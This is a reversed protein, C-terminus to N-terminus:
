YMKNVPLDPDDDPGDDSDDMSKNKQNEQDAAKNKKAGMQEEMSALRKNVKKVETLVDDVESRDVKSHRGRYIFHVTFSAGLMALLGVGLLMFIIALIKGLFNDPVVDGYGVTTITQFAWWIGEWPGGMDPNAFSVFLGSIISIIIILCLTILLRNFGFYRSITNSWPLVMFILVIVRLLHLVGTYGGYSWLLPFAVLLVLISLWNGALYRWHRQTLILCGLFDILFVAWFVWFLILHALPDILDEVELVRQFPLWFAIILVIVQLCYFYIRASRREDAEVGAIGFVYRWKITWSRKM